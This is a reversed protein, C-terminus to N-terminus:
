PAATPTPEASVLPMFTFAHVLLPNPLFATIWPLGLLQDYHYYIEVMVLGTSPAGAQLRAVVETNHLSTVQNRSGSIAQAYSWGDAVPHRASVTTTSGGIVTFASVIIDDDRALDIEITPREQELEQLVLCATQMYFDGSISGADPDCNTNGDRVYYLSDSAFRAANRAADVIALYQNLLFGFEVMGSILILLVPFLLAGEVLSQGKGPKNRSSQFKGQDM